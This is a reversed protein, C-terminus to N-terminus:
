DEDRPVICFENGEPDAMVRWRYGGPMQLVDSIASGGLAAIKALARDLDDVELDVHLRNKVSKSEPVRQFAVPPAGGETTLMLYDEGFWGREQVWLLACWFPSIREPDVTDIVIWHLRGIAEPM